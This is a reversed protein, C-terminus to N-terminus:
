RFKMGEPAQNLSAWGGDVRLPQGTMFSARGGAVFLVARAVEAAHGLRGMPSRLEIRQRDLAADAADELPGALVLNARIGNPALEVALARVLGVLGAMAAAATSRGPYAHTADMSGVHVISGGGRMYAAAARSAHFAGGLARALDTAWADGDADLVPGIPPPVVGRVLVDLGSLSDAAQDVLARATQPVADSGVVAHVHQGAAALASRTREVAAGDADALAVRAGAAGFGRAAAVAVPSGLGIILVARGEFESTM